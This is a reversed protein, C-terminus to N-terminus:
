ASCGSEFGMGCGFVHHDSGSILSFSHAHLPDLLSYVGAHCGTEYWCCILWTLKGLTHQFLLTSRSHAFSAGSGFAQWGFYAVIDDRGVGILCTVIPIILSSSLLRFSIRYPVM